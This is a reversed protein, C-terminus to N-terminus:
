SRTAAHRPPRRVRVDKGMGQLEAELAKIADPPFFDDNSPSTVRARGRHPGVLRARRRRAPRRLVPAAAGIKDGQLAAVVLTLMGGMCYGVVGIKDGQM